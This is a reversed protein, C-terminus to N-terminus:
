AVQLFFILCNLIINTTERRFARLRFFAALRVPEFLCRLCATTIGWNIYTRNSLRSTVSELGSWNLCLTQEFVIKVLSLLLSCAISLEVAFFLELFIQKGLVCVIQHISLAVYVECMFIFLLWEWEELFRFSNLPDGLLLSGNLSHYRM